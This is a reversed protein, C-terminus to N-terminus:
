RSPRGKDLDVYADPSVGPMLERKIEVYVPGYRTSFRWLDFQDLEESGYRRMLRVFEDFEGQEM